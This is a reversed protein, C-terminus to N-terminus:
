TNGFFPLAAGGDDVVVVVVVVVVMWSLLFANDFDSVLVSAECVL